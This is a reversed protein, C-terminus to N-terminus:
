NTCRMQVPAPRPVAAPAEVVVSRSCTACACMSFLLWGNWLGALRIAHYRVCLMVFRRGTTRRPEVTVPQSEGQEPAPLPLPQQYAHV